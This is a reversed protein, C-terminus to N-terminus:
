RPLSRRSWPGYTQWVARNPLQDLLEALPVNSSSIALEPRYFELADMSLVPERPVQASARAPFLSGILTVFAASRAWPVVKKISAKEDLM